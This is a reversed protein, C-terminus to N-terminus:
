DHTREAAKALLVAINDAGDLRALRRSAQRMADLAPADDLLQIARAAMGREPDSLAADEMVIAAGRAALYDANVRQYRWAHPYPALIAPLGLAPLEGLSSAGSRCIVLDAAAMADVMEEHLYAHARYREQEAPSLANRAALAESWDGEGSVHIVIARKLLRPLAELTARNISRAGKSGGYILLAREGEPIGLRARASERSTSLFRERLPYGTPVLKSAPVWAVSDPTTAAVRWALRAMVKLALGPEIDPLFVVAPVRRLWAAVSVPVGVFGGTLLVADPRFSGILRWAAGIGRLTRWAGRAMRGVGVGHVAGAPIGAFAVEARRVLAAEM